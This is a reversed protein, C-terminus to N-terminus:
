NGQAISSDIFEDMALLLKERAIFINERSVQNIKDESVLNEAMICENKLAEVKIDSYVGPTDEAVKLWEQATIIFRELYGRRFQEHTYHPNEGDYLVNNWLGEEKIELPVIDVKQLINKWGFGLGANKIIRLIESNYNCPVFLEPSQYNSTSDLTLAEDYNIISSYNNKWTNYYTGMTAVFPYPVNEIVNKEVTYHQTGNDLYIGGNVHLADVIYNESVISSPQQGLTYIAGGDFNIQSSKEVRNNIIKNERCVTSDLFNTWGWGVCIGSYPVDYIYNNCIETKAVFYAQMGPASCNTLGVRTIFNNSIKNKRCIENVPSYAMSENIIRVDALYLYGSKTIRVYRYKGSDTIPYAVDVDDSWGESGVNSYLVNYTNFSPDNSGYIEINNRIMKRFGKAEDSDAEIDSRDAIDVRDIEYAAGLDVQWWGAGQSQSSWGTGTNVDIAKDPTYNGLSGSVSLIKDAVLNKGSYEGDEYAQSPMGITIASDGLDCFVNGEIVSNAVGQYFGIGVSGMDRIVNDIFEIKEARTISINAPVMTYGPNIIEDSPHAAMDQAQDSVHGAYNVRNWAAHAFELDRFTINCVKNNSDEGNISILKDLIAIEAKASSVDEGERPMYYLTETAKNYYYEGPTDLEEQSNELWFKNGAQITYYPSKKYVDNFAPQSLYFKNVDGDSEIYDVNLLFSRWGRAFHLQIDAQNAYNALEAGSVTIGDKDYIADNEDDFTSIVSYMSESRARQARIGNVNLQSVNEVGGVDAYLIGDESIKWDNVERSGTISANEGPYSMYNVSYGNTGSDESSFLLTEKQRYIGERLYVNIDGYMNKNYERVKQQARKITAFPKDISGDNEDNGDMSVYIKNQIKPSAIEGCHIIPQFKCNWIFAKAVSYEPMAEAVSVTTQLEEESDPQLTKTCVDIVALKGGQTYYALFMTVNQPQNSCNSIKVASSLETTDCLNDIRRQKGNNLTYFVVDSVEFIDVGETEAAFNATSHASMMLLFSLLLIVIKKKTCM